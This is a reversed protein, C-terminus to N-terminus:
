SRPVAKTDGLMGFRVKTVRYHVSPKNALFELEELIEPNDIAIRPEKLVLQYLFREARTRLRRNEMDLAWIVLSDPVLKM